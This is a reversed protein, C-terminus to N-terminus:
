PRPRHERWPLLGQRLHALERPRATGLTAPLQRVAQLVSQRVSDFVPDRLAAPFRPCIGLSDWEVISEKMDERTVEGLEVLSVVTASEGM